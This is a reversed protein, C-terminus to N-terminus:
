IHLSTTDDLHVKYTTEGVQWGALLREKGSTDGAAALFTPFWDLGSFV